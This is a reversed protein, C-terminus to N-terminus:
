DQDSALSRLLARLEARPYWRGRTMVGAPDRLRTVDELPNGDVLLLDARLGPAIRGFELPRGLFRAPEVTAAEIADFPSLGSAVLLDLERHLSSGPAVLPYGMADTGAVLPVGARHLAGALKKMFETYRLEASFARLRRWREQVDPRLSLIAPDDALALRGPGGLADYAVLTTQVSIGAEHLREAVEAVGSDSSRWIVPVWFAFAAWALAVGAVSAVVSQVRAAPTTEHESWISVMTFVIATTAVAVMVLTVTFIVRLGASEFRPGGPLFLIACAAAMAACFLQLGALERVRSVARPPPPLVRWRNIISALSNTVAIVTLAFFAVATVVLWMPHSLMPLFYVNSLAGLHALSQRAALLADLGLNVPAHGTLPVGLERAVDNMHTYPELSLGRTTLVGDERSYVERFKILDYGAAVQARLEREVEAATTVRPENVFEGATYITPGVLEGAEVRARWDLHQPLGRLNVVSTVGYALYIPGDGFDDRSTGRRTGDGDLHVHSDVLGPILYRGGGDVVRVEDPVPIESRSGMAVIRGNRVIVVQDPRVDEDNMTVTNVNVFVTEVAPPVRTPAAQRAEATRNLAIGGGALLLAFAITGPRWM